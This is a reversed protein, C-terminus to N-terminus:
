PISLCFYSFRTPYKVSKSRSPYIATWSFARHFLAERQNINLLVKTEFTNLWSQLSQNKPSTQEGLKTVEDWSDVPFQPVVVEQGLAELKEKLQPFWNGEPSGFAGHFLVLKM